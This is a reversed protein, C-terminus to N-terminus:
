GGAWGNPRDAGTPADLIARYREPHKARRRPAGAVEAAHDPRTADRSIRPRGAPDRLRLSARFGSSLARRHLLVLGRLAVPGVRTRDAEKHAPQRSEGFGGLMALHSGRM